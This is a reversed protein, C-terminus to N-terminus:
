ESDLCPEIFQLKSTSIYRWVIISTGRSHNYMTLIYTLLRYM